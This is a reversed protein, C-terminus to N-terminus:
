RRRSPPGGLRMVIPTGRFARPIVPWEVTLFYAYTGGPFEPTPGFRGNCEDLDGSGRVYEYDQVFAGDYEGGPGSQRGPRTDSRLRYSSRLTTMGADADKVDRYGRLAYIPFGDAAWGVLPSHQDPKLQLQDLLVHAIGHYHYAGNPQVHALQEDLGLPVAGGLAEYTWGSARDGNWFEAAGPDFLIGNLAIGFPLNPPGPTEGAPRHLWTIAGAPKPQAPLEFRYQQPQIQHPNGRNPFAGVLHEPLANATIVRREGVVEIRVENQGPPQRTAPELRLPQTTTARHKRLPPPGGAGPPRQGHMPAPLSAALLIPLLVATQCVRRISISRDRGPRRRPRVSTPTNSTRATM